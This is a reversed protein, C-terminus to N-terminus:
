YRGDSEGVVLDAVIKIWEGCWPEVAVTFALLCSIGPWAMVSAMSELFGKAKADCDSPGALAYIRVVKIKGEKAYVREWRNGLFARNIGAIVACRIANMM